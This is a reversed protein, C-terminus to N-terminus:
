SKPSFSHKLQCPATREECGGKSSIELSVISGTARCRAAAETEEAKNDNSEDREIDRQQDPDRLVGLVASHVIRNEPHDEYHEGADNSEDDIDQDARLAVEHRAGM